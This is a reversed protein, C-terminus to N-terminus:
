WMRGALFALRVFTVEDGDKITFTDELNEYREGNIFLAVMGDVYCQIANNVAEECTIKKTNYHVGFAIKGNQAKENMEEKTLVSLLEVLCDSKDDIFDPDHVERGNEDSISHYFRDFTIRVTEKLFDEVCLVDGPSFIYEYEMQTVKKSSGKIFILIKTSM